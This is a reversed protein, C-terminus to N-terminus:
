TAATTGVGSTGSDPTRESSSSESTSIGYTDMSGGNCVALRTHSQKSSPGERSCGIGVCARISSPDWNTNIQSDRTFDAPRRRRARGAGIGRPSASPPPSLEAKNVEEYGEMFVTGESTEERDGAGSEETNEAQEQTLSLKDEQSEAKEERVTRARTAGSEKHIGMM